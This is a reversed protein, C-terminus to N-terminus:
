TRARGPDLTAAATLGAVGADLATLVCPGDSTVAVTHEWHASPAGDLTVVTWGDALDAVAPSGATVMPEIALVIGPELRMGRGPGEPATNPVYPPEHM